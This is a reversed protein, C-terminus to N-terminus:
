KSTAKRGKATLVYKGVSIRRLMDNARMRRATRMVSGDINTVKKFRRRAVKSNFIATENREEQKFLM